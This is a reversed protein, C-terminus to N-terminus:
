ENENGDKTKLHAFVPLNLDIAWKAADKSGHEILQYIFDESLFHWHFQEDRARELYYLAGRDYGDKVNVDAGSLMLFYAIERTDYIKEDGRYDICTQREYSGLACAFLFASMGDADTAEIDAGSQVLCKVIELDLEEIAYHLPFRGSTSSINVDIGHAILLRLAELDRRFIARWLCFGDKANVDAGHELLICAAEYNALKFALTFPTDASYMLSVMKRKDFKSPVDINGVLSPADIQAGREIFLKIHSANGKIAALHIPALGTETMSMVDAGCDLLEEVGSFPPSSYYCQYHLPLWRDANKANVDAGASFLPKVLKNQCIHLPTLGNEDKANVDAGGTILLESAGVDRECAIHLMSKGNYQANVDAGCHLLMAIYDHAHAHQYIAKRLLLDFDIDVLRLQAAKEVLCCVISYRRDKLSEDICDKLSTFCNIDSCHKLLFKVDAIDSQKIAHILNVRYKWPPLGEVQRSTYSKSRKEQVSDLAPEKTSQNLAGRQILNEVMADDWRECISTMRDRDLESVNAGCDLLFDVIKRISSTQPQSLALLLPPESSGSGNVDVGREILFKVIEFDSAEIAKEILWSGSSDVDIGREILFKVLEFDSWEIAKEILSSNTILNTANADVGLEILIPISSMPFVVEPDASFESVQSYLIPEVLKRIPYEKLTDTLQYLLKATNKFGKIVASEFVGKLQKAFEKERTDELSLADLEQLCEKLLELLKPDKM